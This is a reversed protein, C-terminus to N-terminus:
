RTQDACSRFEEENVISIQVYISTMIYFPLFGTKCTNKKQAHKKKRRKREKKKKEKSPPRENKELKKKEMQQGNLGLYEVRSFDERLIIAGFAWHPHPTGSPQDVAIYDDDNNNNNSEAHM